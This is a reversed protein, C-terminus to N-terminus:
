RKALRRILLSVFLGLTVYRLLAFLTIPVWGVAAPLQAIYTQVYPTGLYASISLKLSTYTNAAIAEITQGSAFCQADVLVFFTLLLLLLVTSRLLKLPYEGHGWVTWDVWLWFSNWRVKLWNLAGKYKEAYHSERRQRARRYDERKALMEERAYLKIAADDGISVANVRHTQMLEVRASPWEPQNGIVQEASILTGRFTSYRFDCKSLQANRFNCDL